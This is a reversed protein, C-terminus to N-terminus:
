PFRPWIRRTTADDFWLSYPVHFRQLRRLRRDCFGPHENALWDGIHEGGEDFWFDGRLEPEGLAAAPEFGAFLDLPFPLHEAARRMQGHFCELRIPADDDLPLTVATRRDHFPFKRAHIRSREHGDGLRAKGTIAVLEDLVDASRALPEAPCQGSEFREKLVADPQIEYCIPKRVPWSM